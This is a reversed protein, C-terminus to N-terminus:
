ASEPWHAEMPWGPQDKVALLVAMKDKRARAYEEDIEALALAEPTQLEALRRQLEAANDEAVYREYDERSIQGAKLQEHITMPVIKGGSVKTGVHPKDLGAIIREEPTMRRLKDHERVYGKPMLLLGEDILCCDTKRKWDPTYFSTLDFTQIEDISPVEIRGHGYYPTGYFDADYDGSHIGTIVDNLVTIFNM